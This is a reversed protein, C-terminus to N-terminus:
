HRGEMETNIIDMLKKAKVTSPNSILNEINSNMINLCNILVKAEDSGIGNLVSSLSIEALNSIHEVTVKAEEIIFVKFSRTDEKSQVRRVWGKDELIAIQKGVSSKGMDVIDALEQQTSGEFLFIHNLIYWQSRTLNIERMERDIFQRLARATDSVMYSAIMHKKTVSVPKRM